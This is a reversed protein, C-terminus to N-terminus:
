IVTIRLFINSVAFSKAFRSFRIAKETDRIKLFLRDFYIYFMVMALGILVVASSFLLLSPTNDVIIEDGNEDNFCVEITGLQSLFNHTVSYHDSKFNIKDNQEGPHLVGAIIVFLFFIAIAIKPFKVSYFYLKSKIM